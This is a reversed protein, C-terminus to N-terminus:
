SSRALRRERAALEKLKKTRQKRAKSFTLDVESSNPELENRYRRALEEDSIVALPFALQNQVKQM